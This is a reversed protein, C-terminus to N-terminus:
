IYKKERTYGDAEFFWTGLITVPPIYLSIEAPTLLPEFLLLFVLTECMTQDSHNYTQILKWKGCDGGEGNNEWRNLKPSGPGPYYSNFNGQWPAAHMPRTPRAHFACCFNSGPIQGQNAILDAVPPPDVHHQINRVGDNTIVEKHVLSVM